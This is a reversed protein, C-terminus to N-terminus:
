SGSSQKNPSEARGRTALSRGSLRRTKLGPVEEVSGLLPQALRLRPSRVGRRSVRQPRLAAHTRRRTTQLEFRVISYIGADWHTPRWAQVIRQKDVLEINRGVILGGFQSFAGGPMPDITAALGTFAAFQKQDLIAQYFRQPSAKFDIEYHIATRATNAAYIAERDHCAGARCVSRSTPAHAPRGSARGTVNCHGRHSPPSCTRARAPFCNM